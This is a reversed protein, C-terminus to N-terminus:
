VGYHAVDCFRGLQLDKESVSMNDKEIKWDISLEIDDFRVGSEADKNYYNDCKYSILATSSLVSFGHLFGRPVFLQRQNKDSLEITIHQGFTKSNKRIDVVVDLINGQIARVLKTQAHEGTQCHLGRIVGYKSFSQNDQVFNVSIGSEKLQMHNYSEFFYGRDDEFVKPEIIFVDDIETKIIHM